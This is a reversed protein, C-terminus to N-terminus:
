LSVSTSEEHSRPISTVGMRFVRGFEGDVYSEGYILANCHAVTISHLLSDQRLNNNILPIIVGLKSLGLWMAVFEPRNELLLGVTDGKKYGHAHFANAIRNSFENIERFTWVRDEYVFCAKEPTKSVFEQFVDGITVNRRQLRKVMYLIKIYRWLARFPLFAFSANTLSDATTLHPM